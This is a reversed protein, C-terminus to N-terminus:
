LWCGVLVSATSETWGVVDSCKGAEADLELRTQGRRSLREEKNKDKELTVWEGIEM